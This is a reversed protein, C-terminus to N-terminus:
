FCYSERLITKAVTLCLFKLQFDHYAGEEGYNKKSVLFNRSSLLTGKCLKENRYHSVFIKSLGTIGRGEQAHFIEIFSNKQFVLTNEFSINQYLSVFIKPRFITIGGEGRKDMFNKERSSIEQFVSHNGPSTKETRHSLFIKSWVTFSGGEEAQFKEIGSNKRFM